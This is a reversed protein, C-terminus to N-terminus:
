PQDAAPAPAPTAVGVTVPRGPATWAWFRVALALAALLAVGHMLAVIGAMRAPTAAAGVVLVGITFGANLVIQATGFAGGRLDDPLSQLSQKFTVESLADGVGAAVASTLLLPWAGLWFIGVFGASMAATALGFVPVPGRAIVRALLPRVGLSGLMLGAAWAMWVAGVFGAPNAPVRVGGLLPLGVHHSASGFADLGRVVVLAGLGGGALAAWGVARRRTSTTPGAAATAADRSQAQNRERAERSQAQNRERAERSQAQNRERAERFQLPVSLLVTASLAYSAADLLFVGRYGVAPVAVIALGMGLVLALGKAAAFVSNIAQTRAAGALVPTAAALTAEFVARGAGIVLVTPFLWALQAAGPVAALLVLAAMRALDAVVMARRRDWGAGYRQGLRGGIVGGAYLCLGLGATAPASHTRVWVFVGLCVFDLAFGVDSIAKAALLVGVSRVRNVAGDHAV